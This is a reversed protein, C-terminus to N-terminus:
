NVDLHSLFKYGNELNVYNPFLLFFHHITLERQKLDMYCHSTKIEYNNHTNILYILLYYSM